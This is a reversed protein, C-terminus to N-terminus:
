SVGPNSGSIARLFVPSEKGLLCIVQAETMVMDYPNMKGGAPHSSAMAAMAMAATRTAAPM